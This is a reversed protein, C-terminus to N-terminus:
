KHLRPAREPDRWFLCQERRVADEEVAPGDPQVVLQKPPTSEVGYGSPAYGPWEPTGSYRYTNPDGSLVFSALYAHFARGQEPYQTGPEDWAYTRDIAHPIGQWAPAGNNTDWRLKWTPAGAASTRYATDQVPCRYAFDTWAAALRNYQTSNPSNAYPSSADTAPDPYLKVLLALDKETLDPASTKMFAVFEAETELTGPIFGKGEDTASTALTPVHFFTEDYGSQSGAKEFLAANKVPQWPWTIVPNYKAFVEYGADRIRSVDTSRLCKFVDKSRAQGDCGVSSLFEAYQTQYLPYTANPFTRATVSGSEYIVRAFLKEGATTGYDHFHHIGVAHGGASLGGLTVTKPDAGFSAAYRQVFRLLLQQDLVGLNLLDADQFLELPLSGLPGLRYNFTIVVLPEKSNAVFAAGDFGQQNGHNFAGGHVWVLTPLKEDLPVGKTRFVELQLCAESQSEPPVSATARQICSKGSKTSAKTGRFAKPWDPKQFRRNGIPQKAYDIGLWADVTSALPKGSVTENVVTGYFSGYGKLTVQNYVPAPKASVFEAATAVAFCFLTTAKM